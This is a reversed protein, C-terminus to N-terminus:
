LSIAPSHEFLQVGLGLCASRLGWALQAPNVMAVGAPNYLGGLYLPSNVMERTEAQDLWLLKEGFPAAVGPMRCLEDVQYPETAVLLEGSRLFDCEINWRKIAAQIEELNVQGLTTLKELQKPWYRLGNEFGHTLSAAVFGGNRGSAGIATQEAELVVIERSNDAERALLATWLGTFGAGIIALDTTILRTLAPQPSPRQPDELWFPVYISDRFSPLTGPRPYSPFPM